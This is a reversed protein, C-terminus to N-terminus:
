TCGSGSIHDMKVEVGDGYRIWRVYENGFCHKVQVYESQCDSDICANDYMVTFRVHNPLRLGPLFEFADGDTIVGSATQSLTPVSAPLNDADILSAEIANRADHLTSEATAYAAAAKYYTFSTLGLASLLSILGVVTLLELLTFGAESKM